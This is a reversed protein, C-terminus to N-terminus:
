VDVSVFFVCSEAPVCIAPEASASQIVWQRKRLNHLGLTEIVEAVTAAGLLDQKNTSFGLVVADCMEDDNMM